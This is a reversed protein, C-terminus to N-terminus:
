SCSAQGVDSMFVPSAIGAAPCSGDVAGAAMGTCCTSSTLSTWQMLGNADFADALCAQWGSPFPPEFASYDTCLPADEDAPLNIGYERAHKFTKARCVQYGHPMLQAASCTTALTQLQLCVPHNWEAM